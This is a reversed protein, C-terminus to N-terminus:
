ATKRITAARSRERALRRSQAGVLGYHTISAYLGVISAYNLFFGPTSETFDWMDLTYTLMLKSGFAM